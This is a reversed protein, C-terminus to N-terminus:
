REHWARDFLAAYAEAPQSGALSHRGDVLVFPVSTVGRQTAEHEDARVALLYDDGDLVRRAEPAALGAEVAVAVLTVPEFIPRDEAFHAHYLATLVPLQRGRERALHVLRHADLTNGHRRDRVFALGQAHAAAAVRDEVARADDLSGGFHEAITALVRGREGKPSDPKLERSRYVVEVEDRHKWGALAQEVRAKGIYCWPCVIDTWIDIRM